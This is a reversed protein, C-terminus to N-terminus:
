GLNSLGITVTDGGAPAWDFSRTQGNDFQIDYRYEPAISPNIYDYAFSQVDTNAALTFSAASNYGNKPDVYRAQVAILTIQLGSFEVNEPKVTLIQHGIMDSQITIFSDTTVSGPVSYVKGNKFIVKAEYYISTQTPDKRDAVFNQADTASANFIFNKQVVPNAKGPYALHVLVQDV